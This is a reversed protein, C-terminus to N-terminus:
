RRQSHSSVAEEPKTIGLLEKVPDEWLSLVGLALAVIIGFWQMGLNVDHRIQEQDKFGNKVFETLEPTPLISYNINQYLYDYISEVGNLFRISAPVFDPRSGVRINNLIVNDEVMMSADLPFTYVLHNKELYDLLSLIVTFRYEIDYVKNGIHTAFDEEIYSLMEGDKMIAGRKDTKLIVVREKVNVEIRAGEKKAAKKFLDRVRIWRKDSASESNRKPYNVITKIIKKEDKNFNRM